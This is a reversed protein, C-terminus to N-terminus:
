LWYLLVPFIQPFWSLTFVLLGALTWDFWSAQVHREDLKRLMPEWLDRRLETEKM